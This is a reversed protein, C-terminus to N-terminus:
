DNGSYVNEETIIYDMRVDNGDTIINEMKQCEYALGIKLAKTKVLYKDYYGSGHGLRNMKEDFAVMPVIVVDIDQPSIKKAKSRNPELIKFRNLKMDHDKPLYADMRGDPLIVPYSVSIGNMDLYNNIDSTYVEDSTNVYSLVNKLNNISLVNILTNFIISSNEEREDLTLSRRKELAEIRQTSKNM